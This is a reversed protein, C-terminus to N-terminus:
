KKLANFLFVKENWVFLLLLNVVKKEPQYLIKKSNEIENHKKWDLSSKLYTKCSLEFIIRNLIKKSYIETRIENKKEPFKVNFFMKEIHSEINMTKQIRKIFIKLLIMTLLDLLRRMLFFERWPMLSTSENKEIKRKKKKSIFFRLRKEMKYDGWNRTYNKVQKFTLFFITIIAFFFMHKSNVSFLAVSNILQGNEKKKLSAYDHKFNLLLEKKKADIGLRIIKKRSLFRRRKINLNYVLKNKSFFYKKKKFVINQQIVKLYKLQQNNLDFFFKKILNFKEHNVRISHGFLKYKKLHSSIRFSMKKMIAWILVYFKIYKGSGTLFLKYAIVMHTWLSFNRYDHFPSYCSVLDTMKLNYKVLEELWELLNTLAPFVRSTGIFSLTTRSILSPYNLCKLVSIIKSEQTKGLLFSSDIKKLLSEFTLYFNKVL